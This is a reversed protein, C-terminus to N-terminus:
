KVSIFGLGGGYEIICGKPLTAVGFRAGRFQKLFKCVVNSIFCHANIESNIHPIKSM